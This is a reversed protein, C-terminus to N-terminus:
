KSFFVDVRYEREPKGAVAAQRYLMPKPHLHSLDYATGQYQFPEWYIM